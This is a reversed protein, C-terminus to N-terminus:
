LCVSLIHIVSHKEVAFTTAGVGGLTVNNKCQRYEKVEIHKPCEQM